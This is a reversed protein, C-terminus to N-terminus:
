GPAEGAKSLLRALMAKSRRRGLRGLRTLLVRIGLRLCGDQFLLNSSDLRGVIGFHRLRQTLQDLLHLRVADDLRREADEVADHEAEPLTIGVRDRHM